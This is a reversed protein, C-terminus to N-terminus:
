VKNPKNIESYANANCLFHHQPLFTAHIMIDLWVCKVSVLYHM